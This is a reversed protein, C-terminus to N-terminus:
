EPVNSHWKHVSFGGARFITIAKEKYGATQQVNEGCLHLNDVYTGGRIEEVADKYEPKAEYKRFNEEM